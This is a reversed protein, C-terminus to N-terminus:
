PDQQKPRTLYNLKNETYVLQASPFLVILCVSQYSMMTLWPKFAISSKNGYKYHMQLMESTPDEFVKDCFLISRACYRMVIPVHLRAHPNLERNFQANCMTLINLANSSMITYHLTWHNRQM